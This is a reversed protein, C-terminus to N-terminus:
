TADGSGPANFSYRAELDTTIDALNNNHLTDGSPDSSFSTETALANYTLVETQQHQSNDNSADGGNILTLIERDEPIPISSNLEHVSEEDQNCFDMDDINHGGGVTSISRQKKHQPSSIVDLSSSGSSSTQLSDDGDPHHVASALTTVPVDSPQSILLQEDNQNNNSQSSTNTRLLLAVADTLREIKENLSKMSDGTDIQQQMSTLLKQELSNIHTSMDQKVEELKSQLQVEIQNLKDSSSKNSQNLEQQQRQILSELEKFRATNASNLSLGPSRSTDSTATTVDLEHNHSASSNSNYRKRLSDLPTPPRLSSSKDSAISTSASDSSFGSNYSPNDVQPTTVSSPAQKWFDSASLSEIIQINADIKSKVHIVQPPGVSDRFRAERQTFPFIRRRYDEFATQAAAEFQPPFLLYAKQDIGGNVVDCKASETGDSSMISTAWDRTSRVLTNGDPFHETRLTDLNTLMPFLSISRLAKIYQDHTEFLKTAQAPSMDAFAFRPIYVPSRYGTLVNLLAQSLPHVHKEGCQVVLHNIKQGLPTMRHLIIDFHPTTDPLISRLSQLYRIRHTTMPAKLLIYGGIMLKGSTTKSNSFSVTVEERELISKTAGKNRWASPTMGSFGFRIPIIVLSQTPILTISPSIFSRVEDPTMKSISNFQDLDDRGWKYLLGDDDCFLENLLEYIQRTLDAARQASNNIETKTKWRITIRHTGDNLPVNLNPILASRKGVSSVHSEAEQADPTFTTSTHTDNLNSANSASDNEKGEMITPTASEGLVSSARKFPLLLQTSKPKNSHIQKPTSRNKNGVTTWPTSIFQALSLAKWTTRVTDVSLVSAAHVALYAQSRKTAWSDLKSPILMNRDLHFMYHYWILCHARLPDVEFESWITDFTSGDVVYRGLTCFRYWSTPNATSRYTTEMLLRNKREEDTEHRITDPNPPDIWKKTLFGFVPDGDPPLYAMTPSPSAAAGESM